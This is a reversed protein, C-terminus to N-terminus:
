GSCRRPRRARGTASSSRRVGAPCPVTLPRGLIPTATASRSSCPGARADTVSEIALDRTDLVVTAGPARQLTLTARGSLTKAAFDARLDLAVHTVRAEEPRAFSHIDRAIAPM